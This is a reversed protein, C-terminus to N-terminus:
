FAVHESVVCVDLLEASIGSGLPLVYPIRTNCIDGTRLGRKWHRECAGDVGIVPGLVGNQSVLRLGINLPGGQRAINKFADATNPNRADFRGLLDQRKLFVVASVM